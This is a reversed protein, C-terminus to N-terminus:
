FDLRKKKDKSKGICEKCLLDNSNIFVYDYYREPFEIMEKADEINEAYYKRITKDCESCYMIRNKM